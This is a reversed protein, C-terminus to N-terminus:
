ESFGPLKFLDLVGYQSTFEQKAKEFSVDDKKGKLTEILSLTEDVDFLNEFEYVQVIKHETGVLILHLHSQDALRKWIEIHEEDLPNSHIDYAAYLEDQTEPDPIYFLHYLLPGYSTEALGSKMMLNFPNLEALEDVFPTSDILFLTIEKGIDQDFMVEVPFLGDMSSLNQPLDSFPLEIPEKKWKNYM